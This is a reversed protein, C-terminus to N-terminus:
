VIVANSETQSLDGSTPCTMVKVLQSGQFEIGCVQRGLPASFRAAPASLMGCMKFVNGLSTYFCLSKGLFADRQGQEVVVICEDPQLPFSVATDGGETGYTRTPGDRLKLAVSDVAYGVRGEIMAVAGLGDAPVREMHIGVCKADEFQLGVIQSGSPAVFRGWLHADTGKIRFLRAESTYFVLANGLYDARAEQMVGVILENPKLMFQFQKNGGDGGHREHRQTWFRLEVSDVASGVRGLVQRVTGVPGEEAGVRSQQDPLLPM